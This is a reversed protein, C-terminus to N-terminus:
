GQESWRFLGRYIKMIYAIKEGKKSTICRGRRLDVLGAKQLEDLRSIIIKEESFHRLLENKTMKKKELLMLLLTSPSVYSFAPATYFIILVASLLLYFMVGSVPVPLWLLNNSNNSQYFITRIAYLDIVLGFIFVIATKITLIGKKLLIRHLVIHILTTVIFITLSIGLYVM